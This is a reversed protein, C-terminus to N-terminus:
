RGIGVGIVSLINKPGAAANYLLVTFGTNSFQAPTAIVGTDATTSGTAIAFPVYPGNAFAKLWVGSKTAQGGGGAIGYQSGANSWQIMWGGLWSPVQIYGSAALLIDIGFRLKKPTIFVSDSAGADVQLQTAAGVGTASTLVWSGIVSSYVVTCVSGALIEGGGLAMQGLSVLPAAPLNNPSFTSAGTNAALARFRLVLGDSLADVAPMYAAAYSNAPGTGVAYSSTGLIKMMASFYQSAGVKDVVGNAVVGVSSLLSQFFGEKDNAWDKELYSGDKATPTSRNKFSGQPYDASPNDFRGPYRENLKLSM